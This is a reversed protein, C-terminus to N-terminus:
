VTLGLSEQTWGLCEQSLVTEKDGSSILGRPSRRSAGGSGHKSVARLGDAHLAFRPERETDVKWCLPVGRM